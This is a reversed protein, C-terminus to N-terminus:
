GTSEDAEKVTFMIVLGAAILVVVTSMGIRQSGTVGTLWGVLLPGAFATAKGSFAFLGFMQNQLAEPAAQALYSRSAAQAPGVFFGLVLGAFTFQAPSEVLLMTSSSLVLATLALLITRRSGILDDIWAFAFAGIGASVNLAIAFYLIDLETMGVTGAAYVGGFAFITALGDVYFIRALLFRAINAYRRIDRLSDVLQRAGDELSRRLSKGSHATDPTFLFLPLSFLAIWAAVFVFSARLHEAAQTDLFALRTADEVFLLLVSILCVLGGGYGLAWGWGSWRGTRERGALGPLMANYSMIALEIAMAGVGALVAATILYQASPRIFWLAATALVCLTTFALIWPKRRGTQDTIAGLVPAVVAVLFGSIGVSLGWAQSGVIEDPAVQRTLYASFVFTLIVTSHASNAWDYMAWSLRGRREGKGNM